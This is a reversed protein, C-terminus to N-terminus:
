HNTHPHYRLLFSVNQKTCIDLRSAMLSTFTQYCRDKLNVTQGQKDSTFPKTMSGLTVAKQLGYDVAFCFVAAFIQHLVVVLKTRCASTLAVSVPLLREAM